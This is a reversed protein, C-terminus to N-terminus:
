SMLMPRVSPRRGILSAVLRCVTDRQARSEYLFKVGSADPGMHMVQVAVSLSFGECTLYASGLSNLSAPESLEIKMGEESIEKCRGLQTSRGQMFTVPLDIPIRPARYDFKRM